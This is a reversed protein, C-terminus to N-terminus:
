LHVRSRRLFGCASLNHLSQVVKTVVSRPKIRSIALFAGYFVPNQMKVGLNHDVTKMKQCARLDINNYIQCLVCMTFMM